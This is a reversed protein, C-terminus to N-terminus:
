QDRRVALSKHPSSNMAHKCYMSQFPIFIRLSNIDFLDCSRDTHLARLRCAWKIISACRPSCHRSIHLILLTEDFVRQYVMSDAGQQFTSVAAPVTCVQEGPSRRCVTFTQAISVGSTIIGILFIPAARQKRNSKTLSACTLM